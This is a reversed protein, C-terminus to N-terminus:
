EGKEIEQLRRTLYVLACDNLGEICGFPCDDCVLNKACFPKSTLEKVTKFVYAKTLTNKRTEREQDKM